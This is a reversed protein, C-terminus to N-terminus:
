DGVLDELETIAGGMSWLLDGAVVGRKGMDKSALEGARGHMWAGVCAADAPEAGQAVLGAIIGTLVDGTGGTALASSGTTNIWVDGDPDAIVTPAGKHLLTLGLRGAVERTQEMREVPAHLGHVEGEVLRGLEGSHPTIVAPVEVGALLDAHGAFANIGDADVVVPVQATTVLGRIFEVTADVRGMGPGVALADARELYPKLTELAGPAVTGEPTSPLGVTIVERLTVDIADRIVDPVALYVMGCGSRLAAEGALLAAGRFEASGAVIVLAGADFKHLDPARYPLRMAAEGRDLLRYGAAHKEIVADDFGIDIVSVEGCHWKGPHFLSGLKPAGITLTTEAMVAEGPTEGTSGDVGSPMDVAVVPQNAENVLMIMELVKDRPAGSVGTGLIADVVLDADALDTTALHMWDPRTADLEVVAANTDMLERLRQYNKAADPSFNEPPKQLHVSCRWGSQALYRAIVLGDGGNNGAGCFIVAKQPEAGFEHLIVEACGRGAREMLELGPCIRDITERDVNQMQDNTLVYM